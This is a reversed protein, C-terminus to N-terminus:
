WNDGGDDLINDLIADLRAMDDDSQFKYRGAQRRWRAKWQEIEQDSPPGNPNRGFVKQVDARADRDFDTTKPSGEAPGDYRSDWPRDHVPDGSRDGGQSVYREDYRGSLGLGRRQGSM